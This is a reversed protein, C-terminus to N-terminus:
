SNLHFRSRSSLFSESLPSKRTQNSSRKVKRHRAESAKFRMWGSSVPCGCGAAVIADRTAETEGGAFIMLQILRLAYIGYYTKDIANNRM